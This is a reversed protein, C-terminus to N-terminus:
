LVLSTKCSFINRKSLRVMSGEIGPLVSEVKGKYFSGVLRTTDHREVFFEELRKEELIAVRTELLDINVHIEKQM